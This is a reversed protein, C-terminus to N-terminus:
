TISRFRAKKLLNGNAHPISVFTLSIGDEVEAVWEESKDDDIFIPHVKALSNTAAVMAPKKSEHFCALAKLVKLAKLALRRIKELYPM